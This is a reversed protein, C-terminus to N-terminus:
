QGFPFNGGDFEAVVGPVRLGSIIQEIVVIHAKASVVQGSEFGRADDGAREDVQAKVAGFGMVGPIVGM